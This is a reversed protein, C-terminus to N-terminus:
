PRSLAQYVAEAIALHGTMNPHVPEPCFVDAPHHRLLKQFMEHTRLLRTRYKRSLGHVVRLYDPLLERAAHRGSSPSREISMYFPEMLLVHCKPLAARTRTLLTDYAEAYVKPSVGGARDRLYSHLDNIGILISLWDPAHRLVDDTWRDRLGTVRDGGIGKNIVTIRKSPERIARLDAFLRVYGNGLPADPARRGCDTISDGIFLLTQGSKVKLAM